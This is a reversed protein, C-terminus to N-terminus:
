VMNVVTGGSKKGWRYRRTGCRRCTYPWLALMAAFRDGFTQRKRRDLDTGCRWCLKVKRMSQRTGCQKCLYAVPRRRLREGLTRKTRVLTPSQCKPCVAPM